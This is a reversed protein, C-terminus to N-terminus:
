QILCLKGTQSTNQISLILLQILLYTIYWTFACQHKTWHSVQSAHKSYNWSNSSHRTPKGWRGEKWGKVSGHLVRHKGLLNTKIATVQVAVQIGLRRRDSLNLMFDMHKLSPPDHKTLSESSVITSTQNICATYFYLRPSSANVSQSRCILPTSRWTHLCRASSTDSGPPVMRWQQLAEDCYKTTLLVRKMLKIRAGPCLRLITRRM